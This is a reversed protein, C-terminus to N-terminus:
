VRDHVRLDETAAETVPILPLTVTFTTGRQEQSQCKISGHLLIVYSKVINLGLGTGHINDANTGRHFPQFLKDQDAAPIGIGEDRIKFVLSSEDSRVTFFVPKEESFKLANDLLNDLITELIYPDIEIRLSDEEPLQLQIRGNANKAQAVLDRCFSNLDVTTPFIEISGSTIKSVTLVDDIMDSLRKVEQAILSFNYDQQEPKMRERYLQVIEASSLITALPTRFEHSIMSIFQERLTNIERQNELEVRLMEARMLKQQIDAERKRELLARQYFAFFMLPYMLINFSIPSTLDLLTVGPKFYPFLFMGALNIVSVILTAREGLFVGSLLVSVVLYFFANVNQFESVLMVVFIMAVSDLIIFYASVRYYRTRTLYYAVFAVASSLLSLYFANVTVLSEVGAMLYPTLIAIISIPGAVVLIAALVRAKRREHPEQILDSPKTLWDWLVEGKVFLPSLKLTVFRALWNDLM